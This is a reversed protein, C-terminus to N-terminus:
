DCAMCMSFCIVPLTTDSEMVSLTRDNYHGEGCDDPISEWGGAWTDPYHGNRYKYTYSSNPPLTLTIEWLTTGAVPQMQLGGPQGSSMNGGSLWVGTGSITQGKMDVQFTADVNNSSDSKKFVRVYDVEMEMPFANPDIGQVGGWDGGVALNLIVYHSHNFPWKDEDGDSDNYIFFYPENDVLYRIYTSDWELSYVHFSDTATPTTVQGSKQTGIMHNYDTTHISAHINGDDYGVHEMIDIEGCHPWGATAINSGLMWIAPWSGNGKPLKARIDFRGYTWTALGATNVRGSTFDANYDTGTYDTGSYGPEILGRIVLKGDGIFLNTDRDTYAQSENNVWGPRWLLKNWKQDDIADRDFEDNWVLTWDGMNTEPLPPASDIKEECVTLFMLFVAPSFLTMM